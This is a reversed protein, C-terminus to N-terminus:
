AVKFLPHSTPPREGKELMLQGYAVDVLAISPFFIKADEIPGYLIFDAGISVAMIAASVTCPIYAQPGLKKKLGKWTAVANHTGAGVPLGWENKVHYIAKCSSGLTPVDLVCTDILPKKIGLKEATTILDSIAKMKGKSTFDKANYALLVASEIKSQKIEELESAKAEPLISNYVVRDILGVSEAYKIGAIRVNASPSDILIPAKTVSAVFDLEKMMAEQSAAVVDLMCPNGTKDSLEDQLNILEEAAKKDFEGTMEDKLIKHGHYFISGVLVVPRKGPVGGVSVKGIQFVKQEVRFELM